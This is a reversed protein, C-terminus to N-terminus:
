RSGSGPPVALATPCPWRLLALPARLLRARPWELDVSFHAHLPSPPARLPEAVPLKGALPTSRCPRTKLPRGPVGLFASASSSIFSVGSHKFDDQHIPPPPLNLLVKSSKGPTELPKFEGDPCFNRQGVFM